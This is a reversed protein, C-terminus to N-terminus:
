KKTGNGTTRIGTVGLNKLQETASQWLVNYLATKTGYDSQDSEFKKVLANTLKM